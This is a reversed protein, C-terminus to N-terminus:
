ANKYVEEAEEETCEDMYHVMLTEVESIMYDDIPFGQKKMRELAMIAYGIAAGNTM